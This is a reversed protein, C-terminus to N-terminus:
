STNLLTHTQRACAPPFPDSCTAARARVDTSPSFAPLTCQSPPWLISHSRVVTTGGSLHKGVADVYIWHLWSRCSPVQPSQWRLGLWHAGLLMGEVLRGEGRGWGLWALRGARFREEAGEWRAM